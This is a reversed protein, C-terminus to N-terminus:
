ADVCGRPARCVSPIEGVFLRADVGPYKALLKKCVDIAPDDQDQVCLLIEYQLLSIGIVERSFGILRSCCDCSWPSLLETDHRRLTVKPYDLTFFTELNSM